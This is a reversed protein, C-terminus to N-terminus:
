PKQRKFTFIQLNKVDFSAPRDDEPRPTVVLTLTDGEIKYICKVTEAKGGPEKPVTVDIAKPTKAPDAKFTGEINEPQGKAKSTMKVTMKGGETFVFTGSGEPIPNTKGMFGVSTLGWTGVLKEDVKGKDDALAPGALATLLALGIAHRM